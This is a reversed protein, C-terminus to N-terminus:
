GIAIYGIVTQGIALIKINIKADIEMNIEILAEAAVVM